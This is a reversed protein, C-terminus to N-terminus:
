HSKSTCDLDISSGNPYFYRLNCDLHTWFRVSLFVGVRWRTRAEGRLSFEVKGQKLARDMKDIRPPDLPVTSSEVVYPLPYTSNKVVDFPDAQLYAIPVQAFQLEFGIDSLSAAAKTNDNHAEMNITIRVGLQGSTDFSLVDLHTDRVTVYPMKPRYALYVSLVVVGSIIVVVALIACVVATFGVLLNPRREQLIKHKKM